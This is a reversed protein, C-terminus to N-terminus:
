FLRRMDLAIMICPYLNRFSIYPDVVSLGSGFPTAILIISLKRMFDGMEQNSM